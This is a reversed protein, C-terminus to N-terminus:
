EEQINEGKLINGISEKFDTIYQEKINVKFFVNEEYKEEVIDGYKEVISRIHNMKSYDTKINFTKKKVFPIIGCIEMTKKATNGYAHVLGGYGLKIGGFYRVVVIGANVIDNGQLPMLIPKGASGSPEGDDSQYENIGFDNLIRFAYCHHTADPYENKIKNLKNFFENKTNIPFGIGIFLSKKEKLEYKAEKKLTNM